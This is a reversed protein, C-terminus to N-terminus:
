PRLRRKSYRMDICQIGDEFIPEPYNDVFFNKVTHSYTFGLQAYFPETPATTGVFIRPHTPAEAEMVHRLLRSGYGRRQCVPDVAINKLECNGDELDVTVAVAVAKGGDELVYMRGRELYWDIMETDPDAELLLPLYAKRDATVARFDEM